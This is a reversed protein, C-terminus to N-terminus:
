AAPTFTGTATGFARFTGDPSSESFDFTCSVLDGHLNAKSRTFSESEPQGGTPTFEFTADISQLIFVSTDDVVHGPTFDGNGNVVVEVSQGDCTLPILEGNTPDAAASPAFATTAIIGSVFVTCLRKLMHNGGSLHRTM